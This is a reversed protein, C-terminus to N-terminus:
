KIIKVGEGNCCKCTVVRGGILDDLSVGLAAAVRAMILASPNPTKGNEIDSLHSKVTYAQRALQSLSLRKSVRLARLNNPLRNETLTM